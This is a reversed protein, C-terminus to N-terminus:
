SMLIRKGLWDRDIPWTDVDTSSVQKKFTLHDKKEKPWINLNAGDSPPSRFDIYDCRMWLWLSDVLGEQVSSFKRKEFFIILSSPEM